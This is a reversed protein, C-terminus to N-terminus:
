GALWPSRFPVLMFTLAETLFIQSFQLITFRKRTTRTTQLLGRWLCRWPRYPALM